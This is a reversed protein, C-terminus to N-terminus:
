ALLPQYPKMQDILHALTGLQSDRPSLTPSDKVQWALNLAPDAWHCGMEEEPCWYESMGYLHHSAVPFYFGHAVGPPVYVLQLPEARLDVLDWRGYTSSRERLDGLCLQMNGGSVVLYDGHRVHVHIGRLSGARSHVLNWQVPRPESFWSERHIETFSGRADGHSTLSVLQVGSIPHREPEVSRPM